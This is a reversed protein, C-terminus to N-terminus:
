SRHQVSDDEEVGKLERLTKQAAVAARTMNNNKWWGWLTTCAAVIALVAQTLAEADITFGYVALVEAAFMVILRFVAWCRERKIEEM